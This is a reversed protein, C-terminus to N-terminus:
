RKWHGARAQLVLCPVATARADTNVPRNPMLM